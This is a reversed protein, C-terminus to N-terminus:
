SHLADIRKALEALWANRRRYMARRKAPIEDLPRISTRRPLSWNGSADLGGGNDQWFARYGFKLRSDRLNWRGKVHHVPDIGAISRVNWETALLRLAHVLLYPTPM